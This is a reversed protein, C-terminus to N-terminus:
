FQHVFTKTSLAKHIASKSMGVQQAIARISLGSRKLSVIKPDIPKAPRGLIKGKARASVLGARVREVIINRELSSLAAIITFMAEGMPTNTDIAESVSCFGIKLSRFEELAKLLFTTSRAFRDFRFCIVVDFKKKQADTMLDDLRPRSAKTGSIGIDEYKEYILYGKTRCYEELAYVQSDTKQDKNSTSVRLYLAAKITM